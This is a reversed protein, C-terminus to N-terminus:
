QPRKQRDDVQHRMRPDAVPVLAIDTAQIEDIVVIEMGTAPDIEIHSKTVRGGTHLEIAEMKNLKPM